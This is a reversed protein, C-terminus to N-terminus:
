AAIRETAESVLDAAQPVSQWGEPRSVSRRRWSVGCGAPLTRWPSRGTGPVSLRDGGCSLRNGSVTALTTADAGRLTLQFFDDLFMAPCHEVGGTDVSLANLVHLYTLHGPDSVV